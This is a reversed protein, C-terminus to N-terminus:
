YTINTSYIKYYASPDSITIKVTTATAKFTLCSLYSTVGVLSAIQTGGSNITISAVTSRGGIAIFYIANVVATFTLVGTSSNYYSNMDTWTNSVTGAGDTKGKAYVNAANVYRYTNTAGLDVTGGTSGSAYTYTGSNSNPVSNTNVTVSSLLKGSDPTVTAASAARTTPTATKTQSPCAAVAQAATMRIYQRDNGGSPYWGYPIYVYPSTSDVGSAVASTGASRQPSIASISVSSLYKGSDPSITQASTSPSASKTQTSIAAVSVSSLVKGSDPSITQATTSPTASKTQTTISVTGSGNHYGAPVTYSTTTTNLTASVAGNNTMSGTEGVTSSNTFTKGSLVDGAGANGVKTQTIGETVGTNYVTTVETAMDDPTLTTSKGTISRFANAIKTLTSGNIVYKSIAM